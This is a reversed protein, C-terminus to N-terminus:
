RGDNEVAGIISRDVMWEVPARDDTLISGGPLRATIRAADIEGLTALDGHLRTRSAHALRQTSLPGASGVVLTNTQEVPDRIVNEFVAAMTAGLSREFEEDDEPHGVNVVVEGDPTLHDAVLEFFEKTTLYFPIYPQRYADVVILDYKRDTSRLWPRADENHVTLNPNSGMDFYRYGVDTLEPDIEVGDVSAQPWFHGYSRAITGGANGLIAVSRPPEARAAFPLVLFSDWYDATLFAGRRPLISHVARGENLELIRDGNDEQIVRIYQVESEDEFLVKGNEVAKVTGVPLALACALLVPVIAYRWGLGAAAILALALAFILFTRQTGAFPILALAALMTGTLSGVTSLAYLRGAVTGASEVDHVALRMAWPSCTGLLIIPIAILVLVGVLSGIFAGAEIQDLADVAVNFFPRGVLPVIALLVSAGLIVFCLSRLDPRRDAIRGGLFYGLSLAVLVVGITNAWIITSAGFFPAMLRAAAIETGLSAAGVVFVLVYLLKNQNV